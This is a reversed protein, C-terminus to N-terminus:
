GEREHNYAQVYTDYQERTWEEPQPGYRQVVWQVFQPVTIAAGRVSISSDDM